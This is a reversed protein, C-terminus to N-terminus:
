GDVKNAIKKDMVTEKRQKKTTDKLLRELIDSFTEGYIGKSTIYRHIRKRIRIPVSEESM